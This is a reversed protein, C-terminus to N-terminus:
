MGSELRAGGNAEAVRPARLAAALEDADTDPRLLEDLKGSPNM